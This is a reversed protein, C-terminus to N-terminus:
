LVPQSVGPQSYIVHCDRIIFHYSRVGGCGTHTCQCLSWLEGDSRSSFFGDFLILRDRLAATIFHSIAGEPLGEHQFLM